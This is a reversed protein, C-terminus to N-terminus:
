TWALLLVFLVIWVAALFHWYWACRQVGAHADASYLGRKANRLSVILAALGGIVHLGHLATLLYFGMLALRFEGSEAWRGGVAMAWAIWCYAQLGLFAGGLVISHILRTTLADHEGRKAARHARVITVDSLLLVVTSLWLAAPLPPLDDPWLGDRTLQVRVVIMSIVSAIFLVALSILFLVMGFRGASHRDRLDAFPTDRRTRSAETM